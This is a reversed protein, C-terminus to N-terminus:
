AYRRRAPGGPPASAVDDRPFGGWMDRLAEALDEEAITFNLDTLIGKPSRFPAHEAVELSSVYQLVGAKKAPPFARVKELIAEEISM